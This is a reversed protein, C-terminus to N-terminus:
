TEDDDEDPDQESRDIRLQTIRSRHFSARLMVSLPFLCVACTLTNAIVIETTRVFTTEGKVAFAPDFWGLPASLYVYFTSGGEMTASLIANAFLFFAWTLWVSLFLEVNRRLVSRRMASDANELRPPITVKAINPVLLGALLCFPIWAVVVYPGLGVFYPM